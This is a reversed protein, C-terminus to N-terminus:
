IRVHFGTSFQLTDKLHYQEEIKRTQNLNSRAIFLFATEFFYWTKFKTKINLLFQSNFLLQWGQLDSIFGSQVFDKKQPNYLGAEIPTFRLEFVHNFISTYKILPSPFSFDISIEKTIYSIGISPIILIKGAIQSQFIIGILRSVIAGIFFNLRKYKYVLNNITIWGFSINDFDRQINARFIGIYHWQQNLKQNALINFNLQHTQLHNPFIPSSYFLNGNWQHYSLFVLLTKVISQNGLFSKSLINSVYFNQVGISYKKNEKLSKNFFTPNFFQYYQQITNIRTPLFLGEELKKIKNGQAGLINFFIIAFFLYNLKNKQLSINKEYADM